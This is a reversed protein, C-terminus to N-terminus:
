ERAAEEENEGAGTVAAAARSSSGGTFSDFPGVAVRTCKRWTFFVNFLGLFM